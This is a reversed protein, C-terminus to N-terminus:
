AIYNPWTPPHGEHHDDLQASIMREVEATAAAVFAEEYAAIIKDPDDTNGGCCDAMLDAVTYGEAWQGSLDATPIFDLVEPDGDDIGRRFAVYTERDTNGDFVWSAANRGHDTGIERANDIGSM